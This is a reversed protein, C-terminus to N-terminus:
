AAKRALKSRETQLAVAASNTEAEQAEPVERASQL